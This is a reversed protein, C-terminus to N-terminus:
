SRLAGNMRARESEDDMDGLGERWKALSTSLDNGSATRKEFEFPNTLRYSKTSEWHARLQDLENALSDLAGSTRNDSSIFPREPSPPANDELRFSQRYADVSNEMKDLLFSVKKEADEARKALTKNDSQLRTFSGKAENAASKANGLEAQKRNLTTRLEENEDRFIDIQTTLDRAHVELRMFEEDTVGHQSPKELARGSGDMNTTNVASNSRNEELEHNLRANASKYKSMEEKMKRLLKESGKVYQVASAYDGELQELKERFERESEDYKNKAENRQMESQQLRSELERLQAGDSLSVASGTNMNVGSDASIGRGSIMRHLARHKVSTTDLERERESLAAVLEGNQRKLTALDEIVDAMRRQSHALENSVQAHKTESANSRELAETLREEAARAAAISSLHLQRSSELQEALRNERPQSTVNEDQKASLVLASMGDLMVKKAADAEQAASACMDRLRAIERGSSELSDNKTQLESKMTSLQNELNQRIGAEEQMRKETGAARDTAALIASRASGIANIHKSMSDQGEVKRRLEELEAEMSDKASEVEIHAAQIDRSTSEAEIVRKRLSTLETLHKQLDNDMGSCREDLGKAENAIAAHLETKSSLEGERQALISRLHEQEAVTNALRKALERSRSDDSIPRGSGLLSANAYAAESLATDRESQLQAVRSGIDQGHSHVQQRAETLESKIALLAEWLARDKEPFQDFRIDGSQSLKYGSEKALALEAQLWKNDCEMQRMRGSLGIDEGNQGERLAGKPVAGLSQEAKSHPPISLPAVSTPSPSDMERNFPSVATLKNRNAPKAERSESSETFNSSSPLLPPQLLNTKEGEQHGNTVAAQRAVDPGDDRQFNMPRAQLSPERTRPVAGSPVPLGSQRIKPSGDGRQAPSGSQTFNSPIRPSTGPPNKALGRNNSPPENDPPYRIKSTDLIFAGTIDEPGTQSGEGGLIVVKNGVATLSHGSRGLPSPGMNQFTFWRRTSFKFASLEQLDAGDPSRGGFFYAVEGVVTAAHGERPSPIYGICDLEQWISTRSDYTWVDNFWMIGNTGGFLYLKDQFTVMAHNTRPQPKLGGSSELMEWKPKAHSM